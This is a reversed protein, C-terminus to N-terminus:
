RTPTPSPRGSTAPENPEPSSSDTIRSELAPDLAIAADFEDQSEQDEGISQLAFGLNLHATASNPDVSIVHRYLDIAETVDGLDNRVIALNFVAPPYDPDINLSLRYNNEAQQLNGRTQQLLGLNYYAFKNQPDLRLVELYAEEAEDLDGAIQAELGRSLADGATESDSADDGCAVAAVALFVALLSGALAYRQM